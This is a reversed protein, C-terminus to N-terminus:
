KSLSAHRKTQLSAYALLVITQLNSPEGILNLEKALDHCYMNMPRGVMRSIRHIWPKKFMPHDAPTYTIQFPDLDKQAALWPPLISVTCVDVPPMALVASTYKATLSLILRNLSSTDRDVIRPGKSHSPETCGFFLLPGRFKEAIWKNVLQALCKNPRSGDYAVTSRMAM